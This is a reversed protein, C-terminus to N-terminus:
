IIGTGDLTDDRNTFKNNIMMKMIELYYYHEKSKIRDSFLLFSSNYYDSTAIILVTFQNM